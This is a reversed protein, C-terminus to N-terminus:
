DNKVGPEQKRTSNKHQAQARCGSPHVSCTCFARLAPAPGPFSPIVAPLEERQESFKM